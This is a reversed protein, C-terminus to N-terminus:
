LNLYGQVQSRVTCDTAESFDRVSFVTTVTSNICNPLNRSLGGKIQGRRDIRRRHRLM